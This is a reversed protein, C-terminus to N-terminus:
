FTLSITLVPLSAPVGTSGTHVSAEQGSAELFSRGASQSFSISLPRYLRLIFIFPTETDCVELFEGWTTPVEMKEKMFLDTNVLMGFSTSLVPAMLVEGKDTKRVIGERVCSLDIGADSDSLDAASAFIEACDPNGWMWYFTCYIDPAESSLLSNGIADNYGDLYVYSLNVKPYYEHFREFESELAEFNSYSGYVTVSADSATDMKPSFATEETARKGCATGTIMCVALIVASIMCKMRRRM